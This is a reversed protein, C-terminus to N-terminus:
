TRHHRDTASFIDQSTDRYSSPTTGTMRRFFRSFSATEAYGLRESIAEVTLLSDELLERARRLRVNDLVDGFSSGRQALHRHLTRESIKLHAAVEAVTPFGVRSLMMVQYVSHLFGDVNPSTELMKECLHRYNGALTPNAMPLRMAGSGDAFHFATRAAGFIIETEWRDELGLWNKPRSLPSEIYKLPLPKQCMDRFFTPVSGLAREHVFPRMESPTYQDNATLAAGVGNRELLRYHLISYGLAQMATFLRLGDTVTPSVLVALGLPGYTVLNYQLGVRFATGALHRTAEFFAREFRLEQHGTLTSWPDDLADLDIGASAMLPLFPIELENLVGVM